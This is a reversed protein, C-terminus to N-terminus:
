AIGQAGEPVLVSVMGEIKICKLKFSNGKSKQKTQILDSVIRPM